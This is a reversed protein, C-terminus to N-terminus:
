LFTRLWIFGSWVAKYLKKLTLTTNYNQRYRPQLLIIPLPIFEYCTTTMFRPGSEAYTLKKRHSM